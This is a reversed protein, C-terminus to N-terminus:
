TIKPVDDTTGEAAKIADRFQEAQERSEFNGVTASWRKWNKGSATRIREGNEDYEYGRWKLRYKGGGRPHLELWMGVHDLEASVGNTAHDASHNNTIDTQAQTFSIRTLSVM